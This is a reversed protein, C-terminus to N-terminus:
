LRSAPLQSEIADLRVRKARRLRVHMRLTRWPLPSREDRLRWCVALGLGIGRVMNGVRRVRVGRILGKIAYGVMLLASLPFPFYTFSLLQENRRGYADIAYVNRHPSELHHIPDARGLRVLFGADLMRLAFDLEEGQRDIVGRFGSMALFVDRRIAVAGGAFVATVWRGDGAPASQRVERSLRLDVFPIAVAGIRPHDFDAITQAVVTPTTFVCDDDISVILPVERARGSQNRRAVM